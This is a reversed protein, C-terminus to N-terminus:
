LSNRWTTELSTMGPCMFANHTHGRRHIRRPGRHGIPRGDHPQTHLVQPNHCWGPVRGTILLHFAIEMAKNGRSCKPLLTLILLAVIVNPHVPLDISLSMKYRTSSVPVACHPLSSQRHLCSCFHSCFERGAWLHIM